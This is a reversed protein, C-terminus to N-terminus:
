NLMGNVICKETLVIVINGRNERYQVNFTKNINGLVLIYYFRNIKLLKISNFYYNLIIYLHAGSLYYSNHKNM